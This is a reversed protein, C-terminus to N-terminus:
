SILGRMPSAATLASGAEPGRDGGRERGTGWEHARDRLLLYANLFRVLYAM